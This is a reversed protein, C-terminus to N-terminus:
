DNTAGKKIEIESCLVRELKRGLEIENHNEMVYKSARRGLYSAFVKDNLLRITNLGFNEISAYVIGHQPSKIQDTMGPLPTSLVPKGCALYQLTKLPIIDRTVDNIRFPNICLNSLSIFQPMLSYPQFGTFIVKESLGSEATINKLQQLQAGGGVIVLRANPVKKVVQSFQELYLDLGSFEYLTGLFLVVLNDEALGLDKKLTDSRIEPNFRCLDVGCLLLDVKERKADLRIVYESMKPSLTLIKDAHEYVWTELSFTFPSFIKSPVLKHLIDVSRFVVPIGHKKAIKIAQYGNTPVSYLIIIEIGYKEIAGKIALYHTFFASARDIFPAKIFGPRILTISANRYARGKFKYEKTRLSGFDFLSKRDRLNGFDIMFVNHGFSALLESLSHLDFVVKTSWDVEHVFLINLFYNV